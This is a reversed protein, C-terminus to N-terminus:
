LRKWLHFRYGSSPAWTTTITDNATNHELRRFNVDNDDFLNLYTLLRANRKMLLLLRKLKPICSSPFTTEILIIDAEGIKTRWIGFEFLNGNCFHIHRQLKGRNVKNSQYYPMYVNKPKKRKLIPTGPRHNKKIGLLLPDIKVTSNAGDHSNFLIETMSHKREYPFKTLTACLRTSLNSLADVSKEYRGTSIEVGILEKVHPYQLYTQILIKGLGMGLDIVLNANNIDLHQSDFIKTVGEPLIEGYLLDCKKEIAKIKDEEKLSTHGITLHGKEISEIKYCNNLTQVINIASPLM